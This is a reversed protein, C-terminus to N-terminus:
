KVVKLKHKKRLKEWLKEIIVLAAESKNLKKNDSIARCSEFLSKNEGKRFLQNKIFISLSYTIVRLDEKDLKAMRVREDLTMDSIIQDVAGDVTKPLVPLKHFYDDISFDTINSGSPADMVDLLIAGEVIATILSDANPYEYTFPGVFYLVDIKYLQIWDYVLSSAEYFATSSLDVGLL